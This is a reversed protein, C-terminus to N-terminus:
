PLSRPVISVSAHDATFVQGTALTLASLPCLLDADSCLSPRRCATSASPCPLLTPRCYGRRLRYPVVLPLCLSDRAVRAAAPQRHASLFAAADGRAHTFGPSSSRVCAARLLLSARRLYRSAALALRTFALGTALPLAPLPKASGCGFSTFSSPLPAACGPRSALGRGHGVPTPFRLGARRPPPLTNRPHLAAQLVAFRFGAM